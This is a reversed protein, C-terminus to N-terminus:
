DSFDIARHRQATGAAGYPYDSVVPASVENLRKLEDPTLELSTTGLNDALQDTNRVGLIV